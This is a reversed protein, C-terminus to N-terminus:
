LAKFYATFNFQNFAAGGVLNFSWLFVPKDATEIVAILNCLEKFGDFTRVKFNRYKESSKIPKATTLHKTQFPVSNIKLAVGNRNLMRYCRAIDVTLM